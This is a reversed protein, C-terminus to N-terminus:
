NFNSNEINKFLEPIMRESFGAILALLSLMYINSEAFSFAIDAKSVLFIIGGSVFGLITNFASQLFIYWGKPSLKIETNRQLISFLSGITGASSCIFFFKIEVSKDNALYYAFLCTCATLLVTIILFHSKIEYPTKLKKLRKHVELFADEAEKVTEKNLASFLCGCISTRISIKNKEDLDHAVSDMIECFKNACASEIEHDIDNVEWCVHDADDYFVIVNHNKRIISTIKENCNSYDGVKYTNM